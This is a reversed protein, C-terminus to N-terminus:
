QQPQSGSDSSHHLGPFHFGLDHNLPKETTDKASKKKGKVMPEQIITRQSNVCEWTNRARVYVQSFVGRETKSKTRSLKSGQFVRDYTGNVVVVDGVMRVSVVKQTLQFRPADKMMMESIQQDRNTVNGTDSIDIYEPALVLELAYQDHQYVAEDWRDAVKQLDAVQQAMQGASRQPNSEMPLQARSISSTALIVGFVLGPLIFHRPFSLFRQM